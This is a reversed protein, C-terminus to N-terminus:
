AAKLQIVNDAAAIKGQEVIWAAIQEAEPALYRLDSTETYNKLEVDNEVSHNKLLKCKWMQIKCKELAIQTFTRRLDHHNIRKEAVNSIKEMISTARSFSGKGDRSPFVFNNVRPRLKMMERLPTSFPLTVKNRNKPDPLTWMGADLNVNDWTLLTAEELRCGTLLLFIVVDVSHPLLANSRLDLLMNWVAGIKDLPIYVDRSKNENWIQQDKLTEVPNSSFLRPADDDDERYAANAFNILGSLVRMAQNAQTPAHESIKNFRATVLSRTINVIPKDAWDAFNTKLHREVDEKTREKLQKGDKRKKTYYKEAVERLTVSLTKTRKKEVISTTGTSVLILEKAAKIKAQDCTIDGHVGLTIRRTKGDIRKQLIYSRAGSATVRVGFGNPVDEWEWFFAQGTVPTPLADVRTKTLKM